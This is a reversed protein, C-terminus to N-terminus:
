GGREFQPHSSIWEGFIQELWYDVAYFNNLVKNTCKEASLDFKKKM